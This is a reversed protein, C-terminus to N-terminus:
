QKTVNQLDYFLTYEFTAGCLSNTAEEGDITVKEATLTFHYMWYYKSALANVLEITGDAEAFTITVYSVKDGTKVTYKMEHTPITMSFAEGRKVKELTFPEHEYAFVDRLVSIPEGETYVQGGPFPQLFPKEPLCSLDFYSGSAVAHIGSLSELVAKEDGHLPYIPEIQTFTHNLDAYEEGEVSCSSLLLLASFNIACICTWRILFYRTRQINKNM